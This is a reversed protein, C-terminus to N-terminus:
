FSQLKCWEHPFFYLNRNDHGHNLQVRSSGFDVEEGTLWNKVVSVKYGISDFHHVAKKLCDTTVQYHGTENDIELSRIEKFCQMESYSNATCVCVAHGATIVQQFGAISAHSINTRGIFVGRSFVAFKVREGSELLRKFGETM